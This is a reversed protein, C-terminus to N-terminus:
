KSLSDFLKLKGDSKVQVNGSSSITKDIQEQNNIKPKTGVYYIGVAVAVLVGLGALRLLRRKAVARVPGNYNLDDHDSGVQQYTGSAGDHKQYSGENNNSM